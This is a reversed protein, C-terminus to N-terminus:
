CVMQIPEIEMYHIQFGNISSHYHLIAKATNVDEQRQKKAISRGVCCMGVPKM